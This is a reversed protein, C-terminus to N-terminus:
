LKGWFLFKVWHLEWVRIIPIFSLVIFPFRMYSIRKSQLQNVQNM